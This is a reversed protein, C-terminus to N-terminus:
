GPPLQDQGRKTGPPAGREFIVEVGGGPQDFAPQVKGRRVPIVLPPKLHYRHVAPQPNPLAYRRVADMGTKVYRIGDDYTTVYTGSTVSGAPLIRVDDAFASFRLFREEEESQEIPADSAPGDGIARAEIVGAYEAELRSLVKFHAGEVRRQLMRLGSDEAAEQRDELVLLPGGTPEHAQSGNLVIAYETAHYLSELELVQYGMGTEPRRALAARWSSHVNLVM